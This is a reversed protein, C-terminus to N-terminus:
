FNQVNKVLLVHSREFSIGLPPKLSNTKLDCINLFTRSSFPAQALVDYHFMSGLSTCVELEMNVKLFFTKERRSEGTEPLLRKFIQKPFM